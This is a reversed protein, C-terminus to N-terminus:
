VGIYILFSIWYAYNMHRKASFSEYITDELECLMLDWIDFAIGRVLHSLLWQQLRTTGDRFNPRPLITRRIIADLMRVPLLMDVPRRSSDEGFDSGFLCRVSDVPPVIGGHARRPPDVGPYCLQHLRVSQLPIRLLERARASSIERQEGLFSFSIGTHDPHIWLTAFFERVWSLVYSGSRQVLDTLGPITQLYTRVEEGVLDVISQLPIVRQATVTVKANVYAM